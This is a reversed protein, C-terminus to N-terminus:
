NQLMNRMFSEQCIKSYGRTSCMTVDSIEVFLTDISLLTRGSEHTLIQKYNNVVARLMLARTLIDNKPDGIHNINSGMKQMVEAPTKGIFGSQTIVYAIKERFVKLRLPSTVPEALFKARDVAIEKAIAPGTKKSPKEGTFGQEIADFIKTTEADSDSSHRASRLGAKVERLKMRPNLPKNEAGKPFVMSDVVAAVKKGKEGLKVVSKQLADSFNAYEVKHRGTKEVVPSKKEQKGEALAKKLVDKFEKKGLSTTGIVVARIAVAEAINHAKTDREFQDGKGKYDKKDPKGWGALRGNEQVVEELRASFNRDLRANNELLDSALRESVEQQFSEFAREKEGKLGPPRTIFEHAFAAIQGRDMGARLQETQTPM